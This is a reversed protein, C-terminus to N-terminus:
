RDYSPPLPTGTTGLFLYQNSGTLHFMATLDGLGVPDGRGPEEGCTSYTFEICDFEPATRSIDYTYMRMLVRKTSNRCGYIDIALNFPDDVMEYFTWTYRIEDRTDFLDAEGPCNNKDYVGAPLSIFNRRISVCLIRCLM